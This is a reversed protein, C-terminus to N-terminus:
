EAAPMERGVSTNYRDIMWTTNFDSCLHEQSSPAVHGTFVVKVNHEVTYIMRYNIRSGMALVDRPTRPIIQIPHLRLKPEGDIERPPKAGPYIIAHHEFKEGLYKTAAGDYTLIPRCALLCTVKNDSHAVCLCQCFGHDAAIIVFQLIQDISAGPELGGFARSFRTVDTANEQGGLHGCFLLKFLQSMPTLPIVIEFKSAGVNSPKVDKSNNIKCETGRDATNTQLGAAMVSINRYLESDETIHEEPPKQVDEQRSTEEDTYNEDSDWDSFCNMSHAVEVADSPSETKTM